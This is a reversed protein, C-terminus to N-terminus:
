CGSLIEDVRAVDAPDLVLAYAGAVDRWGAAYACHAGSNPPMWRAPGRDGKANNTPGDVARLETPDNAFAERQEDTWQWAGAQWPYSLPIVHDIQVDDSTTQGRRFAITSPSTSRTMSSAGYGCAEVGSPPHM